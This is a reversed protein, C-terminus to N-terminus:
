RELCTPVESVITQLRKEYQRRTYVDLYWFPYHRGVELVEMVFFRQDEEKLNLFYRWLNMLFRKAKSDKLNDLFEPSIDFIHYDPSKGVSLLAQRYKVRIKKMREANPLKVPTTSEHQSM